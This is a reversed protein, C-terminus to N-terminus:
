SAVAVGVIGDQAIRPLPLAVRRLGSVDFGARDVDNATSRVLSCGGFVNSWIPQVLHQARATTWRKAEVHEALRLTGGPRLVRRVEGLARAVEEVSCLVFTIVVTDFSGADFPLAEARADVVRVTADSPLSAVRREAETRLARAPEIATVDVGSRYFRFNLGTGAGIELVRGSADGVVDARIPDFRRDLILDHTFTSLRDLLRSM